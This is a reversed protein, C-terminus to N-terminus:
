ILFLTVMHDLLGVGLCISSFSLFELKFLYRGGMNMAPSNITVLVHFGGLHGDVSSPIFFINYVCVCVCM